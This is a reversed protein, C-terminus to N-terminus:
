RFFAQKNGRFGQGCGTHYPEDIVEAEESTAEAKGALGAKIRAVLGEGFLHKSTNCGEQSLM